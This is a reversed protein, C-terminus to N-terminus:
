PSLQKEQRAFQVLLAHFSLLFCPLFSLLFLFNLHFLTWKCWICTDLSFSSFLTSLLLPPSFNCPTKARFSGNAQKHSQTCTFTLGAAVSYGVTHMHIHTHTRIIQNIATKCWNKAEDCFGNRSALTLICIPQSASPGHVPWLFLSPSSEFHPSPQTVTWDIVLCKRGECVCLNYDIRGAVSEASNVKWENVWEGQRAYYFAVRTRTPDMYKRGWEGSAENKREREGGGGRVEGEVGSSLSHVKM